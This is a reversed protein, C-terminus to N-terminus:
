IKFGLAGAVRRQATDLTLFTLSRDPAYNLATALHWCDAGRLYGASLVETIERGLPEAAAILSAGLLPSHPIAIAERALASALEAETFISTVVRDFKQLRRRLATASPERFALAVFVSADAYAVTM